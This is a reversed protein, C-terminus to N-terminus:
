GLQIPEANLPAPSFVRRSLEPCAFFLFWSIFFNVLCLTCQTLATPSVPIAQAARSAPRGISDCQPMHLVEHCFYARKNKTM